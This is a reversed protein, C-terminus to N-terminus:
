TLQSNLLVSELAKAIKSLFPIDSPSKIMEIVTTIYIAQSFHVRNVKIRQSTKCNYSPKSGTLISIKRRKSIKKKKGLLLVGPCTYKKRQLGSM